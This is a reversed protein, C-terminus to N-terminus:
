RPAFSDQVRRSYNGPLSRAGPHSEMAGATPSLRWSEAKRARHNLNELVFLNAERGAVGLGFRVEARLFSSAPGKDEATLLTSYCSRSGAPGTTGAM